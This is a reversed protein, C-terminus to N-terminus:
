LCTNIFFKMGPPPFWNKHKQVWFRWSDTSAITNSIQWYCCVARSLGQAPPDLDAPGKRVRSQELPIIHHPQQKEPDSRCSSCKPCKAQHSVVFCSTSTLFTRPGAIPLLPHGQDGHKERVPMVNLPYRWSSTILSVWACMHFMKGKNDNGSYNFM